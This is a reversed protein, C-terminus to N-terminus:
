PKYYHIDLDLAYISAPASMIKGSPKSEAYSNWSTAFYNFFCLFSINKNAFIVSNPLVGYISM